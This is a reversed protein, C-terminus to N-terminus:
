TGEEDLAYGVGRVTRVLSAGEGRTLKRRLRSVIVELSAAAEPTDRGWVDELPGRPVVVGRGFPLRV